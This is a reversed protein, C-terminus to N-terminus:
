MAFVMVLAAIGIACWGLRRLMAKWWWLSPPTLWVFLIDEPLSKATLALFGSRHGAGLIFVTIDRHAHKIVERLIAKDRQPHSLTTNFQKILKNRMQASEYEERTLGKGGKQQVSRYLSSTEIQHIEHQLRAISEGIASHVDEQEIPFMHVGRDLAQLLAIGNLATASLVAKKDDGKNLAKRWIYATRRLVRKVGSRHGASAKLQSLMEKPFRALGTGSYGEQGFSLVNQTRSLYWCMAFIESQVNAIRRAQFREFTGTLVPHLQGIGIVLKTCEGKGRVQVKYRRFAPARRLRKLTETAPGSPRFFM